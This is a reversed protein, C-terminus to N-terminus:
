VVAPTPASPDVEPEALVVRDRGGEKAVYLAADASRVLAAPTSGHDPVASVGLSATVARVLQLGHMASRIREALAAAEQLTSGPLLVAFEEGGYRAPLGETAHEALLAGVARLVDDGAQHGHVDNISKFHDLDVIVLACAGGGAVAGTVAATLEEDFTRRNALGTLGDTRAAAALQETAVIRGQALSAQVLAQVATSLVRAEVRGGFRPPCELLLYADGDIQPLPLVVVRRAEPLLAALWPDTDPDVHTVLRRGAARAQLLLPSDQVPRGGPSVTGRAGLLGDRGRRVVVARRAALTEGAFAVLADDLDDVRRSGQLALGLDRLEEADIRRRRLERENVAAGTATMLTATWLVVLFVTLDAGTSLLRAQSGLDVLGTQGARLVLLALLSHWLAIKLGTRFSSLLTVAVVHVVIVGTGWLAHSTHTLVWALYVGDALLAGSFGTLALGRSRQVLRLTTAATLSLYALTVVLDDRLGNWVVLPTEALAQGQTLLTVLVPALSLVLRVSQLSRAREAFPVLEVDPVAVFRRM